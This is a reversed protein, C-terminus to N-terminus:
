NNSHDCDNKSDDSTIYKDLIRDLESFKQNYSEDNGENTKKGSLILAFTLKDRVGFKPDGHNFFTKTSNSYWTSPIEDSPHLIFLSNISLTVKIDDGHSGINQDYTDSSFEIFCIECSDGLTLTATVTNEGQNNCKDDFTGDNNYINDTQFPLQQLFPEVRTHKSFYKLITDHNPM